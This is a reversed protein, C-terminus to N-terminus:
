AWKKGLEELGAQQLDEPGRVIRLQCDANFDAFQHFQNECTLLYFLKRSQSAFDGEGETVLTPCRIM